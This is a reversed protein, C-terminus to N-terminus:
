TRLTGSRAILPMIALVLLEAAIAGCLDLGVDLPSSTRNPLFSQHYEDAIAVLLTSFVALAAARRWLLPVKWGAPLSSRWGHFFAVSLLGYGSFHGTKRILHHVQAWHGASIPGFLYVWIPLLWHSTNDSSMSASSEVAIIAVGLAAPTWNLLNKLLSKRASGM